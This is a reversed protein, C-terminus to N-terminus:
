GKGTPEEITLIIETNAAVSSGAAPTQASVIWTAETLAESSGNKTVVKVNTFGAAELTARGDKGTKGVVKPVVITGTGTGTGTGTSPTPAVTPPVAPASTAPPTTAPASTAAPPTTVLPPTTTVGSSASPNATVPNTDPTGRFIYWLVGGLCLLLLL